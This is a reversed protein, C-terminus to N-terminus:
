ETCYGCLDRCTFKLDPYDDCFSENLQSCFVSLVGDGLPAISNECLYEDCKGCTLPCHSAVAAAINPDDNSCAGFQALQSCTFTSGQATASVPYVSDACDPGPGGEVCFDVSAESGFNSAQLIETGGLSVTVEGIGYGCCIGDGFSDSITFTFGCGPSLCQTTTYTQSNSLAGNSMVVEGDGDTVEWSTESAYSDTILVVTLDEGACETPAATPPPAETPAPSVTPVAPTAELGRYLFAQEVMRASQDPTFTYMCCDNTYDMYNHIPDLGQANCTDRGIPCGYAPSSEAPTDDVLDNSSSCGGQFTHYLGLWHGVEHTATDGEDYNNTGGEPLSSYLLVASDDLNGVVQPNGGAPCSSPFYAFGLYVTDGTFINLASCDGKRLERRKQESASSDLNFWSNNSYTEVEVLNFRFPTPAMAQYNFGCASYTSQVGAYADNLVDMQKQITADSLAGVGNSNTFVHFYVDVEIVENTGIRAGGKARFAKMDDEIQKLEDESPEKYGCTRGEDTLQRASNEESSNAKNLQGYAGLALYLISAFAFKM